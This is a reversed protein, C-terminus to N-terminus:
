KVHSITHGLPLIPINGHIIGSLNDWITKVFGLRAKEEGNEVQEQIATSLHKPHMKPIILDNFLGQSITSVNSRM